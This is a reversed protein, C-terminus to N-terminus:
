NRAKRAIAMIQGRVDAPLKPWLNELERFEGSDGANPTPSGGSSGAATEPTSKMAPPALNQARLAREPDDGGGVLVANEEHNQPNERNQTREKGTSEARLLGVHLGVGAAHKFNEDADGDHLYHQAAVAPDHGLWQCVTALPYQRYLESERSARMNHFLKPWPALGAREIARKLRSRWNKSADRDSSIVFEGQPAEALWAELVDHLEPFLPITRSGGGSHHETKPSRVILKGAISREADPWIVDSWKMNIIESPCRLAGYRSLALVCRFERDTVAAMVRDFVDRQVFHKRSENTSSGAKIAMFHNHQCFGWRQARAFLYRYAKVRRALTARSIKKETGLWTILNDADKATIHAVPKNKGWFEMAQDFINEYFNITNEKKQSRIEAMAESVLQQLAVLAAAPQRPPLLGIEAIRDYTEPAKHALALLKSYIEQNVADAMNLRYCDAVHQLQKALRDAAEKTIAGAAVSRRHKKSLVVWIRKFGNRDEVHAM